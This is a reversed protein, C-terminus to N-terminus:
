QLVASTMEGLTLITGDLSAEGQGTVACLNSPLLETVGAFDLRVEHLTTNHVVYVANGDKEAIFGGAKTDPFRLPTYTGSAIQPYAARIM